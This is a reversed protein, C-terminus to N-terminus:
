HGTAPTQSGAKPAPPSGLVLTASCRVNPMSMAGMLAAELCARITKDTADSTVEIVHEDRAVWHIKSELPRSSCQNLAARRLALGPGVAVGGLIGMLANGEIECSVDRMVFGDVELHSMQFTGHGKSPAAQEPPAPMQLAIKCGEADGLSCAAQYRQRAEATRKAAEQGKAAAMCARARVDANEPGRQGEVSCGREAYILRESGDSPSLDALWACADIISWRDRPDRCIRMFAKRAVDRDPPGGKGTAYAKGLELCGETSGKKCALILLERGDAQDAALAASGKSFCDSETRCPPPPRYSPAASPAASPAREASAPPREPTACAAAHGLLLWCACLVGGKSASVLAEPM